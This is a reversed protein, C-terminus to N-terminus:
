EEGEVDFMLIGYCVLATGIAGLVIGLAIV